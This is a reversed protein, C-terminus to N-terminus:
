GSLFIAVQHGTTPVFHVALVILGHETLYSPIYWQLISNYDQTKPAHNLSSGTRIESKILYRYVHVM